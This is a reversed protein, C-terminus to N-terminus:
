LWQFKDKLLEIAATELRRTAYMMAADDVAAEASITRYDADMDLADAAEVYVKRALDSSVRELSRGRHRVMLTACLRSRTEEKTIKSAIISQLGTM